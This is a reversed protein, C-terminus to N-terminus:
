LSQNTSISFDKCGQSLDREIMTYSEKLANPNLKSTNQQTNKCRHEDIISAHFKRKTHPIKPKQILIMTKDYFSSPLTVEETSKQFQKQLVPTLEERFTQYFKGRFGDTGPRKNTPLKETVTEVETSTIRRNMNETEEQNLRQLSYRELFTDMEEFNDM